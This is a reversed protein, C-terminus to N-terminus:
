WFLNGGVHFYAPWSAMRCLISTVNALLEGTKNKEIASKLTATIGISKLKDLSIRSVKRIIKPPQPAQDAETKMVPYNISPQPPPFHQMQFHSTQPQNQNSAYNDM